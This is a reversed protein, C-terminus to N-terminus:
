ASADSATAPVSAAPHVILFLFPAEPTVEMETSPAPFGQLALNASPVTKVNVAGPAPSAAVARVGGALQGFGNHVLFISKSNIKSSDPEMEPGSKWLSFVKPSLM